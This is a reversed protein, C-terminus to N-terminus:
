SSQDPHGPVTVRDAQVVGGSNEGDRTMSTSADVHSFGLSLLALGAALEWQEFFSQKNALNFVAVVMASGLLFGRTDRAGRVLALVIAALTAIGVLGFAPRWDQMIATTFLSLSNLRAPLRLNYLVAGRAFGAPDVLYWPLLFAIAWDGGSRHSAM